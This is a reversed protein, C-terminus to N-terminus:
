GRMVLLDLLETVRAHFAQRSSLLQTDMTSFRCASSTGGALVRELRQVSQSTHAECRKKNLVNNLEVENHKSARSSV